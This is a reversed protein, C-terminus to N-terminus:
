SCLTINRNIKVSWTAILPIVQNRNCTILNTPQLNTPQQNTPTAPQQKSGQGFPWAVPVVWGVGFAM